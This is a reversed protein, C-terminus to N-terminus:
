LNKLNFLSKKLMKESLAISFEYFVDFIRILNFYKEFFELALRLWGKIIWVQTNFRFLFNILHQNLLSDDFFKLVFLLQYFQFKLKSVEVFSIIIIKRLLLIREEISISIQIESCHFVSFLDSDATSLFQNKFKRYM